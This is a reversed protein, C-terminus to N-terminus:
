TVPLGIPQIVHHTSSLSFVVVTHKGPGGAVAILAAAPEDLARVSNDDFVAPFRKRRWRVAEMLSAPFKEVPAQARQYLEQQIQERSLGHRSLTRAHEPCLLIMVNGGMQMFNTGRATLTEAMNTLMDEASSSVSDYHNFVSVAGLATVTSEAQQGQSRPFSEWPSDGENEAFALTYKGPHGGTARDTTGPHAGGVNMMTLRVARGITANARNGPGLYGPGSNMGLEAAVPGTVMLLPTVPNTTVQITFLNFEDHLMAEFAAILVPLMEPTGGAMIANIALAKITLQGWRPPVTGLIEDGERDISALWRELRAPTPPVIPLGDGIGKSEVLEMWAEPSDEVEWFPDSVAASSTM